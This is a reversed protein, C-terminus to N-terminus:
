FGLHLSTFYGEGLWVAPSGLGPTQAGAGRQRPAPERRLHATEWRHRPMEIPRGNEARHHDRYPSSRPRPGRSCSAGRPLPDTRGQQGPFLLDSTATVRVSACVGWVDQQRGAHGGHDQSSHVSDQGPCAACRPNLESDRVCQPYSRRDNRVGGEGHRRWGLRRQWKGDGM